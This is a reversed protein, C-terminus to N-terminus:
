YKATCLHTGFENKELPLGKNYLKFIHGTKRRMPTTRSRIYSGVNAMEDEDKWANAVPDEEFMGQYKRVCDKGEGNLGHEIVNLQEEVCVDCGM